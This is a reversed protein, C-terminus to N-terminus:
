RHNCRLTLCTTLLSHPNHAAQWKRQATVETNRSSALKKRGDAQRLCSMLRVVPETERIRPAPDTGAASAANGAGNEVPAGGCERTLGAGAPTAGDAPPDAGRAGGNGRESGPM